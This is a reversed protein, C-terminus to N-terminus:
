AREACPEELCRKGQQTARRYSQRKRDPVSLLSFEREFGMATRLTMAILALAEGIRLGLRRADTRSAKRLGGEDAEDAVRDTSHGAIGALINGVTLESVEIAKKLRERRCDFGVRRGCVRLIPLAKVHAIAAILTM